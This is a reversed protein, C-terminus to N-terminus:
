KVIKLKIEGYSDTFEDWGSRIKVERLKSLDIKKNYDVTQGKEIQVCEAEIIDCNADSFGRIPKEIGDLYLWLAMSSIGINYKM